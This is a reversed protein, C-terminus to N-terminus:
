IGMYLYNFIKFKCANEFDNEIKAIHTKIKELEDTEIYEPYIM